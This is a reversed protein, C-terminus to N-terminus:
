LWWTALDAVAHGAAPAAIGRSVIRLGGLAFGVALDLPVVHWGYLPVHILAFVATTVLLAVFTGGARRAAGFLAGRLVAEEAVAVFLTVAAWPAFPAAPRALGPVPAAGALAAGLLVVAILSAGVAIGAIAHAAPYPGLPLREGSVRALLLLAAGFGAGVILPELGARMAALRAAAVAGIGLAVLGVEVTVRRRSRPRRLAAFALATM